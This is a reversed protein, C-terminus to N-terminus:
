NAFYTLRCKNVKDDSVRKQTIHEFSKGKLLRLIFNISYVGCESDGKQHRFSNFKFNPTIGKNKLYKQIKNIFHLIRKDPEIGYSDSFYINGDRLNFYLSVWHSGSKYHEDLNFVVGLRYKHQEEFKSFDMNKFGLGNLEEFDIPVAGLFKFDKYKLEYQELVNNIDLTSLWEFKGQPGNPRFIKDKVEEAVGDMFKQEIWEKQTLHEHRKKFEALLYLRYEKPHTMALKGDIEIKEGDVDGKEDIHHNYLIAMKGLLELPYCSGDEFSLTPGCKKSEMDKPMIDRVNIFPLPARNNIMPLAARM